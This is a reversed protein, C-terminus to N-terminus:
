KGQIPTEIVAMHKRAGGTNAFARLFDAKEKPDSMNRKYVKGAETTTQYMVVQGKANMFMLGVHYHMLTYGKKKTDRNFSLLYLHDKKVRGLLSDFVGKAHIDFGKAQFGNLLSPDATGGAPNLYVRRRGETINLVLDWGFDWDEGHVSSPGSDNLRDRKAEAVTTRSGLLARSAELVFGSCNFGPTPFTAAEDAFLTCRGEPTSVGDPRYIVGVLPALLAEADASSAALGAVPWAMGFLGAIFVWLIHRM